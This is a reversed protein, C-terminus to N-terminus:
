LRSENQRNHKAQLPDVGELRLKRAHLAKDRAEALTVDAAPGLGMYRERGGMAYRYVWSRNISGDVGKTCQLYLGRGDCHWGISAYQVAKATLRMSEEALGEVGTRIWPAATAQLLIRYFEIPTNLYFNHRHWLCIKFNLPIRYFVTFQRP